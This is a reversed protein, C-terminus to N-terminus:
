VSGREGLLAHVGCVRQTERPPSQKRSVRMNALSAAQRSNYDKGKGAMRKGLAETEGAEM